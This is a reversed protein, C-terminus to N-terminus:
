VKLECLRSIASPALLKLQEAVGHMRSVTFVENPDCLDRLHGCLRHIAENTERLRDVVDPDDYYARGRITLDCIVAALLMLLEARPAAAMRAVLLEASDHNQVM